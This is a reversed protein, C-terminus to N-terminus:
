DKFRGANLGEGFAPRKIKDYLKKPAAPRAQRSAVASDARVERQDTGSSDSSSSERNFIPIAGREATREVGSTHKKQKHHRNTTDGCLMAVSRCGDVM